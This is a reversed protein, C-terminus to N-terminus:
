ELVKKKWDSFVRQSETAGERQLYDPPLKYQQLQQKQEPTLNEFSDLHTLTWDIIHPDKSQFFYPLVLRQIETKSKESAQAHQKSLAIVAASYVGQQVILSDNALGAKLIRAIEQIRRDDSAQFFGILNCILEIRQASTWKYNSGLLQQLIEFRKESKIWSNGDELISLMHKEGFYGILNPEEAILKLVAESFDKRLPSKSPSQYSINQSIIEWSENVITASGSRLGAYVAPSFKDRPLRQLECRYRYAGLKQNYNENYFTEFDKPDIRDCVQYKEINQADVALLVRTKPEILGRQYPPFPDSGSYAVIGSDDLSWIVIPRELLSDPGRLVSQVCVESERRTEAPNKTEKESLTKVVVGEVISWDVPKGQVHLFELDKLQLLEQLPRVESYATTGWISTLAATLLVKVVSLKFILM